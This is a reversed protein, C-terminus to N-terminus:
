NSARRVSMSLLTDPRDLDGAFRRLRVGQLGARQLRYQLEVEHLRPPTDAAPGDGLRMTIPGNGRSVAPFAALLLGGEVLCAHAQGLLRDVDSICPGVPFDAAVVVHCGIRRASEVAIVRRFQDSLFPLLSADDGLVAAVKGSRDPIRLLLEKLAQLHDPDPHGAAAAESLWADWDAPGWPLGAERKVCAARSSCIFRARPESLDVCRVPKGCRGLM